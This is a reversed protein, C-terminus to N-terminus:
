FNLLGSNPAVLPEWIKSRVGISSDLSWFLSNRLLSYTKKIAVAGPSFKVLMKCAAQKFLHKEFRKELETCFSSM